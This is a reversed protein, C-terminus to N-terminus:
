NYIKTCSLSIKVGCVYAVSSLTRNSREPRHATKVQCLMCEIAYRFQGWKKAMWVKIEDMKEMKISDDYYYACCFFIVFIAAKTQSLFKIM